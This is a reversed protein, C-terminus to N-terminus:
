PRPRGRAHSRRPRVGPGARSRCRARACWSRWATSSARGSAARASRPAARGTSSTWWAARLRAPDLPLQTPPDDCASAAHLQRAAQPRRGARGVVEVGAPGSGRARAHPELRAGRLGRRACRGCRPARAAARASCWRAAGPPEASRPSCGPRTPTTPRSRGDDTSAHAHEGRRDDAGRRRARRGARAGGGQAPDHRQGRPLGGGAARPRDRRVARAAGAAAPLALRRPGLARLAARQMAPSRSHAVPWGLVGLRTTVQLDVPGQRRQGPASANYAAVDRQFQADTSRSRTRATAARSSSTSSTAAQAGPARGGPDLSLGPNGIPTPPLGQHTRTNYPTDPQLESVSAAPADLQAARLPDDRRHRAAHGPAPPQLHGGRDAAPGQPLRAEREIMSAIILVDYPTLNKRKRASSTSRASRTQPLGRAAAQGAGSRRARAQLEYTAPFLFGELTRAARARRLARRRARRASADAQSTAARCAAQKVLPAIERRSRGEPITLKVTKPAAPATTDARRAGGRLVHGQAARHAPACSAASARCARACASSSRALRGRGQRRAPRRDALRTAGKPITSSSRRRPRQGSRSSSRTPSPRSRSSAPDGPDVRSSRAGAAAPPSTRSRRFPVPHGLAGAASMSQSGGIRRVGLPEEIPPRRRARADPERNARSRSGARARRPQSAAPAARAAARSRRGDGGHAPAPAGRAGPARARAGGRLTGPQTDDKRGCLSM